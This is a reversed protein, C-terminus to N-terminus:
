SKVLYLYLFVGGACGLIGLGPGLGGSFLLIFGVAGCVAAILKIARPDKYDGIMEKFM